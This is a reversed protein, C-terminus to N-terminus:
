KKRLYYLKARRAKGKQAVVIKEIIPSYLPFLKEVIDGHTEKLVAFSQSAGTGRRRVCTGEFVQTRTKDGEKVRLYVKLTDGVRFKPIGKKIVEKEVAELIKVSREEKTM